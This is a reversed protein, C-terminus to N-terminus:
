FLPPHVISKHTRGSKISMIAPLQSLNSITEQARYLKPDWARLRNRCSPQRLRPAFMFEPSVHMNQSAHAFFM